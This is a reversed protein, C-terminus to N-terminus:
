AAVREEIGARAFVFVVERVALGTAAAVARSYVAAQPRHAEMAAAVDAPALRDTKYDVVVLEDGERFVLDVRGTVLGVLTPASADGPPAQGDEDAVRVAFPVERHLSSSRLARALVPSALCARAMAMVVRVQPAVGADTCVAGAVAELDEAGPLRVLEMTRHLADGVSLPPGSGAAVAGDLDEAGATLPRWPKEVSSATTVALERRADALLDDRASAWQARRERAAAVEDADPALPGASEGHPTAAELLRTDYVHCGDVDRGPQESDDPLCELLLRRLGTAKARDGAVPVILHDRARTAAVYLVRVREATAQAKEDENAADFGPTKFWGRNKTGVRLHLRRSRTDPIPKAQGSSQAGADALAVIPYELGKASHVTLLRVVDDSEESVGADSEESETESSEALWRAFARLGGGSREFARAQEVIKLLNAAAQAGDSLTLSLGILGTRELVRRVLEALSVGRRLDHLDRLIALADLVAEAGPQGPALYNLRRGEATFCFLEEDSCGFATSRLATVLSLGDGPDDIARLCAVLDRVEQRKFFTRGGEHRFPIGAAGLANEYLDAGTRTPILIALDRWEAARSQRTERDRVAWREVRVARHCLAALAHAEARRVEEATTAEAGVRAMVVPARELELGDTGAVLPVYAPQRGEQEQIATHFLRNVWEILGDGARFNQVIRRVGGALAGHKIADYTAIDARRFRYVSQKPDGVVFLKGPVAALDRWSVARDGDSVLYMVIEAQIPDTDQFEDVLVCRYRRQFYARVELSDRLLDRAWILLDDFDATGAKRRESEFRQIFEEVFPMVGVLAESRLGAALAELEAALPNVIDKMRDCAGSDSWRSKAGANARLTPAAVLVLREVLASDEGAADIRDVFAAIRPIQKAGPDAEPETCDELLRDLELRSEGLRRTFGMLDPAPVALPALPLLYRHRHLADAVERMNPISFGRNLARTIAPDDRSLLAVLWRDFAQDLALRAGLGDLVEFGPDLAAEVPRERLLSAAFAHLTEIRARHLDGAAARLRDAEDPRPAADARLAAELRQRVRVMLEAAAKETFTIVAIQDIRAHGTRIVEFIRDVLVTTKGTGAGAEVCLSQGLEAAIEDRVDQDVPEARASV